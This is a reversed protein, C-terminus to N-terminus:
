YSVNASCNSTKTLKDVNKHCYGSIMTKLVQPLTSFQALALHCALLPAESQESCSESTCSHVEMIVFGHGIFQLCEHGLQLPLIASLLGYYGTVQVGLWGLLRVVRTLVLQLGGLQSVVYLM